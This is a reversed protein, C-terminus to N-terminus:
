RVTVRITEYVTHGNAGTVAYVVSYWGQCFADRGVQTNTVRSAGDIVGLTTDVNNFVVTVTLPSGDSDEATIGALPDFTDNVSLELNQAGLIVADNDDASADYNAITLNVVEVKLGFERSSTLGLTRYAGTTFYIAYGGTPIGGVTGQPGLLGDFTDAGGRTWTTWIAGTYADYNAFNPLGKLEDPDGYKFPNNVDVQQGYCDRVLVIQGSADVIVLVGYEGMGILETYIFINDSPKGDAYDVNGQAIPIVVDGMLVGSAHVNVTLAKTVEVGNAGTVAYNFVYAGEATPTFVNGSVLDNLAADYSLTVNSLSTGDYDTASVMTSLDLTQNVFLADTALSDDLNADPIAIVHLTFEETIENGSEGTVKFTLVYDGVVSTDIAESVYITSELVISSTLDTGDHDIAAVGDWPDYSEGVYVTDVKSESVTFHADAAITVVRTVVVENGTAGTVKYTLTYVGAANVDFTGEVVMQSTLDTGDYDTAVVNLLEDFAEGVALSVDDAGTIVADSLAPLVTVRRTVYITNGNAGTVSYVVAFYGDTFGEANYATEGTVPKTLDVNNYVINVTLTSDDSDLGSVGALPDFVADSYITIDDAGEIRANDSEPNFNPIDLGLINVYAGFERGYLLGLLRIPHTSGAVNDRNFFIAFGGEPIGGETGQPGLLGVLIDAGAWGDANNLNRIQSPDGQKIPNTIDFQTGYCDRVLVIQGQADVIIVVSYEGKGALETYIITSNWPKETNDINTTLVPIYVGEIEIGQKVVNVTLTTTAQTGNQGTVKFDFTFTGEETPTFVNEVVLADLASDFEVADIALDTGDYDKGSAIANLDVDFGLVLNLVTPTAEDTGLFEVTGDSIEYITLTITVETAVGSQGVVSYVLDYDGAVSTDVTGDPNVIEGSLVISATLDTDDWDAATVGEMPLFETDVEINTELNEPGVIRPNDIVTITRVVTVVNGSAGTVSYEVEYEGARNVNVIGDTTIASTLDSDDYDTATVGDLKVFSEGVGITVDEVGSFVADSIVVTTSEETTVEVTTDEVTTDEVTTVEETTPAETTAETTTEGCATLGFAFGVILLGIFFRKM